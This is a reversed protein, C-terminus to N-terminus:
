LKRQVIETAVGIITVPLTLVEQVSFFRDEYVEKNEARLWIGDNTIEIHKCTSEDGNIKVIAFDRPSINGTIHHVKVLDGDHLSPFM